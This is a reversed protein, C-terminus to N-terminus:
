QARKPELLVLGRPMEPHHIAWELGIFAGMSRGVIARLQTLGLGRTVLAYEAAMM